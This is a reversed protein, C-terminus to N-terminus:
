EGAYQLALFPLSDHFELRRDSHDPPFPVL